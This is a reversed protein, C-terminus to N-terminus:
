EGDEVEGYIKYAETEAEYNASGVYGILFIILLMLLLTSVWNFIAEESGVRPLVRFNSANKNPRWLTSHNHQNRDRFQIYQKYM